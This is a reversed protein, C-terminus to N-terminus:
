VNALEHVSVSPCVERAIESLHGHHTLYIVQGVEAMGALLRMAEEARFDDFTEMIDDALFPVPTHLQAAEHYGAVRLALYLQFRTGRSLESHKKPRGDKAIAILIENEKDVQSELGRYAGRSITRFAESTRALMSSKHQRRYARLAHRAAVVGARLRLYGLAGEEIQLLVTRRQQEIEAVAADDGIAELADQAKSREAFLEQVRQDQDRFRTDLEAVESDLAIRDTPELAREADEISSLRLAEVIERTTQLVQGELREKRQIDALKAAVEDLSDVGFSALMQGVRGDHMAHAEAIQRQQGRLQDLEGDKRVRLQRAELAEQVRNAIRQAVAPATDDGAEIGLMGALKTVEAGFARQDREMKAIRDTLSMRRELAPGLEAHAALLSQVSVVSREAGQEGLWCSACAANWDTHWARDKEVAKEHARARMRALRGCEELDAKLVKFLSQRDLAAQGGARLRDLDAETNHVLGAADLASRLHERLAEGDDTAAALDHEAQRLRRQTDLAKGRSQLWAEFTELSVEGAMFLAAAVGVAERLDVLKEGAAELAQEAASLDADLVALEQSIRQLTVIEAHHTLRAAMALDDQRLATEFINASEADLARRHAAWAAEREGRIRAAEQDSVIGAFTALAKREAERRLREVKLRKVEEMHRTYIQGTTALEAKWRQIEAPAPVTAEALKEVQGEWPRLALLEARLEDSLAAREREALKGRAAHDSAQIAAIAAALTALAADRPTGSGGDLDVESLKAKAEDLRLRADHDEAQTSALEAEIGSRRKILEQLAEVTSTPVLLRDPEAEGDHGLRGLIGAIAFDERQVESRREPIDKESTLFRAQLDTLRELMDCVALAAQDIVIADRDSTTRAIGQKIEEAKVRLTIAEERLEPIQDRWEAPASPLKMLPALEEQAVRLAALRPIADALRRIEDIRLQMATREHLADDYQRRARDRREKLRVYQPAATDIAERKGKLEKLQDKLTRLEYNHAHYRYFGDAENEMRALERSLEALGASASFLLQGLDGKSELISEGGAEITRDDLSYRARYSDRDLGGLEGRIIEEPVPSFNNDLLSNRDRKVRVLEHTRRVSEVTGGIEMMEKGHLFGFQSNREIGFLLDLFASLATSKGAENLGYVIHFDPKGLQYVGFDLERDTFVGYRTLRLQRLRM